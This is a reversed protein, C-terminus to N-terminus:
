AQAHLVRLLKARTIRVQYVPLNTLIAKPDVEVCVDIGREDAYWWADHANTKAPKLPGSNIQPRPGKRKRASM